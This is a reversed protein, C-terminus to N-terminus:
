LNINIPSCGLNILGNFQNNTCCVPQTSCSNGGIGVVSLPSCNVPLTSRGLLGTIDGLVIGLLGLLSNSTSSTSSLLSNCCQVPGTNCQNSPGDTRPVASAAALLPLALVLASTRAFMNESDINDASRVLNATDVDWTGDRSPRANEYFWVNRSDNKDPFYYPQQRQSYESEVINSAFSCLRWLGM